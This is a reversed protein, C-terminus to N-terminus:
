GSPLGVVATDAPSWNATMRPTMTSGMQGRIPM